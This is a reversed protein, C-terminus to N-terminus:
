SQSDDLAAVVSEQLFAELVAETAPDADAYRRQYSAVIAEEGHRELWETV